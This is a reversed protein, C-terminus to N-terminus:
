GFKTMRLSFNTLQEPEKRIYADLYEIYEPNTKLPNLIAKKMSECKDKDTFPDALNIHEAFKQLHWFIMTRLIYYCHINTTEFLNVQKENPKDKFEPQYYDSWKSYGTYKLIKAAQAFIFEMEEELNKQISDLPSVIIVNFINALSEIFTETINHRPSKMAYDYDISEPNDSVCDIIKFYHMCEHLLVKLMEEERFILITDLATLATNSNHGTILTADDRPKKTKLPPQGQKPQPYRYFDKISTFNHQPPLEKLKGTFYIMVKPLPKDKLRDPFANPYFLINAIIKEALDKLDADSLQTITNITILGERQDTHKYSIQYTYKMNKIMIENLPISCYEGFLGLYKMREKNTGYQNIFSRFIEGQKTPQDNDDDYYYLPVFSEYTQFFSGRNISFINDIQELNTGNTIDDNYTKFIELLWELKLMKPTQNDRLFRLLDLKSFIKPEYLEPKITYDFKVSDYASKLLAITEKNVEIFEGIIAAINDDERPRKPAAAPEAAAAAGGKQKTYKKSIKKNKRYVNNRKCGKKSKKM